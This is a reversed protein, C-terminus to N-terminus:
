GVTSTCGPSFWNGLQGKHGFVHPEKQEPVTMQRFWGLGGGYLEFREDKGSM